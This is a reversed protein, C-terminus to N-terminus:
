RYTQYYLQGNRFSVVLLSFANTVNATGQYGAVSLTIPASTDDVTVPVFRASDKAAVTSSVLPTPTSAQTLNVTITANSDNVISIDFNRPFSPVPAADVPATTGCRPPAPAGSPLDPRLFADLTDVLRRREAIASTRTTPNASTAVAKLAPLVGDGGPLGRVARALAADVRAEGAGAAQLAVAVGIRRVAARYEVPTPGAVASVAVTSTSLALRNELADVRPTLRQPTKPM